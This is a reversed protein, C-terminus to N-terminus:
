PAREKTVLVRTISFGKPRGKTLRAEDIGRHLSRRFLNAPAYGDAKTLAGRVVVDAIAPARRLAQGSGAQAALALQALADATAVDRAVFSLLLESSRVIGEAGWAGSHMAAGAKRYSYRPRIQLSALTDRAIPDLAIREILQEAADVHVSAIPVRVETAGAALRRMPGEAAWPGSASLEAARQGNVRVWDDIQKAKRASGSPGIDGASSYPASGKRAPKPPRLVNLERAAKRAKAAQRRAGETDAPSGEWGQDPREAPASTEVAHGERDMEAQSLSQITCRCNHGNPPFWQDWVPSDARYVRGHMARHSDRVRQDSATLYRWFPRRSRLQRLQQYRGAAYAGQVNNRFVLNLHHNGRSTLGAAEFGERLQKVAQRQSLGHELADAITGHAFELAYQQTLGAVAFARARHKAELRKFAGPSMLRKRKFYAIAEAFPLDAFDALARGGEVMGTLRALM